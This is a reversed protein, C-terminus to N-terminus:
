FHLFFPDQFSKICVSSSSISPVFNFTSNFTVTLNKLHKLKRLIVILLPVLLINFLFTQCVDRRLLRRTKIWFFTLMPNETEQYSKSFLIKRISTVSDEFNRFTAFNIQVIKTKVAKEISNFFIKNQFLLVITPELDICNKFKVRIKQNRYSTENELIFKPM